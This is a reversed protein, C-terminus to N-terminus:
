AKLGSNSLHLDYYGRVAVLIDSQVARRWASLQFFIFKEIIQRASLLESLSVLYSKFMDAWQGSIFEKIEAFKESEQVPIAIMGKVEKKILSSNQYSM